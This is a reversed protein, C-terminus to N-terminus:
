VACPFFGHSTPSAFTKDKVQAYNWAYMLDPSKMLEFKLSQDKNTLDGQRIIATAVTFGNQRVGSGGYISDAGKFHVQITIPNSLLGTDFPLKSFLGSASSWPLPLLIDATPVATGALPALLVEGGLNFMESRKEETECQVMIKQLLSQGNIAIQSVNSSGFLYSISDIAAYGWGRCLTQDAVLKPLELHLYIEELLSSNPIVIQSQSRFNTQSLSITLRGVNYTAEALEVTTNLASYYIGDLKTGPNALLTRKNSLYALDRNM